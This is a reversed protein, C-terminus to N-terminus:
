ELSFYIYIYHKTSHRPEEKITCVKRATYIPPLPAEYGPNPSKTAPSMIKGSGTHGVITANESGHGGTTTAGVISTLVPHISSCEM